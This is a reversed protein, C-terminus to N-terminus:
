IDGRYNYKASLRKFLERERKEKIDNMESKGLDLEKQTLVNAMLKDTIDMDILAIGFNDYEEFAELTCHTNDTFIISIHGKMSPFFVSKITKGELQNWQLVNENEM